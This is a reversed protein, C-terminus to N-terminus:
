IEKREQGTGSSALGDPAHQLPLSIPASAESYCSVYLWLHTCPYVAFLQESPINKRKNKTM